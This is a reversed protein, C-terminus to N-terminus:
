ESGKIGLKELDCIPLPRKNTQPQSGGHNVKYVQGALPGCNFRTVADRQKCTPKTMWKGLFSMGNVIKHKKATDLCWGEANKIEAELDVTPHDQDLKALGEASIEFRGTEYNMVASYTPKSKKPTPPEKTSSRAPGKKFLTHSSSEKNGTDDVTSDVTDRVTDHNGVERQQSALAVTDNITDDVTDDATGQWKDYNVIKIFSGSFGDSYSQIMGKEHLWALFRRVKSKNWGAKKGFDAMSLALQGRRLPYNHARKQFSYDDHTAKSVLYLWAFAQCWPKDDAIEHSFVERSVKFWNGSM